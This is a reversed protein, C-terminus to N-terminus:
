YKIKQIVAVHKRLFDHWKPYNKYIDKVFRRHLLIKQKMPKGFYVQKQMIGSLVQEMASSLLKAKETDKKNKATVRFLKKTM